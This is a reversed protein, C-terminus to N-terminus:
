LSSSVLFCHCKPRDLYIERSEHPLCTSCPPCHHVAHVLFVWRIVQRMVDLPTPIHFSCAEGGHWSRQCDACFALGCGTCIAM